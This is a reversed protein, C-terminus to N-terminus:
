APPPGSRAEWALASIRAVLAPGALEEDLGTTLVVLVYPAADAPRVIAADHYLGPISGTKHAVHIGDPLGAPIGENFAQAALIAEMAASAEPSVVEGRGIAALLGALDAATVTNNLGAAYALDDELGRRVVLGPFGLARMTASVAEAGLRDILLNTALNSSHTIMPRALELLTVTGGEREYLTLESDDAPDLRYPSGDLISRFSNRVVLPDSLSLDGHEARRFLEVLVPVKMTSASHVVTHADALLRPAGDLGTWAVGTFAAGAARVLGEVIIAMEDM